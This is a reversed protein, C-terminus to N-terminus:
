GDGDCGGPANERNTEATDGKPGYEIYDFSQRLNNILDLVQSNTISSLTQLLLPKLGNAMVMARPDTRGASLMQHLIGELAQELRGKPDDTFSHGRHCDETRRKKLSLVNM